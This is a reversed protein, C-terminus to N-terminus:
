SKIQANIGERGDKPCLKGTEHKTVKPKRVIRIGACFYCYHLLVESCHLELIQLKSFESSSQRQILVAILIPVKNNQLNIIIFLKIYGQYSQIPHGLIEIGNDQM